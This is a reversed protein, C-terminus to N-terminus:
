GFMAKMNGQCWAHSDNYNTPRRFPSAKPHPPLSASPGCHDLFKKVPHCGGLLM